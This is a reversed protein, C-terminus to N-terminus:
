APDCALWRGAAAAADRSNAAACASDCRILALTTCTADGRAPAAGKGAAQNTVTANATSFRGAELLGDFSLMDAPQGMEDFHRSWATELLEMAEAEATGVAEFRFNPTELTAVVFRMDTEM